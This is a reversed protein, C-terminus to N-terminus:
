PGKYGSPVDWTSQGTMSNYYYYQGSDDDLVKEWASFTASAKKQLNKGGGAKYGGAKSEAGGVALHNMKGGGGAAAAAAVKGGAAAAGGGGGGAKKGGAVVTVYSAPVYGKKGNLEGRYWGDSEPDIVSIVDGAHFTLEDIGNGNFDYLAKLQDRVPANPDVDPPRYPDPVIHCILV